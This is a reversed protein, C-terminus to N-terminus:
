VLGRQRIRERISVAAVLMGLGWPLLARGPEVSLLMAMISSVLCVGIPTSRHLGALSLLFPLFLLLIMGASM